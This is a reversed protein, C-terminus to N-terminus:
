GRRVGEWAAQPIADPHTEAQKYIEPFANAFENLDSAIRENQRDAEAREGIGDIARHARRREQANYYHLMTEVDGSKIEARSELLITEIDAKVRVGDIPFSQLM